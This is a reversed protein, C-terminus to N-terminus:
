QGLQAQADALKAIAEDLQAKLQQINVQYQYFAQQRQTDYVTARESQTVLLQDVQQQLGTEQGQMQALQAEGNMILASMEAARAQYDSERAALEQDLQQIQAQILAERAAFAAQVAPMDPAVALPTVTAPNPQAESDAGTLFSVIGIALVIISTAAVAMMVGVSKM